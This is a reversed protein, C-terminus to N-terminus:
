KKVNQAPIGAQIASPFDNAAAAAQGPRTISKTPKSKTMHACGAVFGIAAL